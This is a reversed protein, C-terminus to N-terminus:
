EGLIAGKSIREVVLELFALSNQIRQEEGVAETKADASQGEEGEGEASLLQGGLCAMVADAYGVGMHHPLRIRAHDRLTQMIDEAEMDSEIFRADLKIAPQWLGIELLVVGLAYIDHRAAFRVDPPGQRDPHRYVNRHLLTDQENTSIDGEERSFEFGVLIPGKYDCEVAGSDKKPASRWPLLVNESRISKHVWDVSHLEFLTQALARAMAFREDLTPRRPGGYAGGGVRRQELAGLLTHPGDAGKGFKAEPLDFAFAYGTVPASVRVVAICPLTRFGAKPGAAQALIDALRNVRQKVRESPELARRRLAFEKVEVFVRTRDASSGGANGPGSRRVLIGIKSDSPLDLGFSLESTWDRRAPTNTEDQAKILARLSLVGSLEPGNDSLDITLVHFQM